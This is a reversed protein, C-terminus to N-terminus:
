LARHERCGIVDLPPADTKEFERLRQRLREIRARSQAALRQDIKAHPETERRTAPARDSIAQAVAELAPAVAAWDHCLMAIDTGAQLTRVVSEGVEYHRAIAGM